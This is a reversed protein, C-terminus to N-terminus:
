WFRWPDKYPPVYEETPPTMRFSAITENFAPGIINWRSDLTSANLSYLYGEREATVAVSHRYVDLGGQTLTPSKQVLYEYYFYPVGDVEKTHADVISVEAVRQGMTMRATSKDALVSQAVAKADWTKSDSTKLFASNPPGVSVSIVLNNKLDIRESVIRQRADPALPAASSYREPKRSEVWSLNKGKGISVPYTFSYANIADVQLARDEGDVASSEALAPQLVFFSPIAVGAVLAQRRSIASSKLLDSRHATATESTDFSGCRPGLSRLHLKSPLKGNKPELLFSEGRLSPSACPRALRLAMDM